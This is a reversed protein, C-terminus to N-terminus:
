GSQGVVLGAGAVGRHASPDLKSTAWGRLSAWFLFPIMLASSAGLRLGERTFAGLSSQPQLHRASLFDLAFLPVMVVLMVAFIMYIVAVARVARRQGAYLGAVAIVALLAIMQPMASLVNAGVRVRWQNEGVAPPWANVALSGVGIAWTVALLVIIAPILREARASVPRHPPTMTEPSTM